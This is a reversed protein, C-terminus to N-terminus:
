RSELAPRTLYVNETGGGEDKPSVKNSSGPSTSVM